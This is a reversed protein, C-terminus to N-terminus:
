TVQAEKEKEKEGEAHSAIQMERLRKKADKEEEVHELIRKVRM